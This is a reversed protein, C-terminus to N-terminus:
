STSLHNFVKFCNRFRNRSQTFPTFVRVQAAELHQKITKRIRTTIRMIPNHAPFFHLGPILLHLSINTCSSCKM